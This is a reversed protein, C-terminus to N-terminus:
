GRKKSKKGVGGLGKTVELAIEFGDRLTSTTQIDDLSVGLEVLTSAVSPSLGSIITQCGMLRTAKSVKVFQNAVATDVAVVGSIDLVLVKSRLEAIKALSKDMIDATRMSDIVGVLPLLLIKDWIPTVPTSMEMLANSHEAIRDKQVSSIEDAILYIELMFLKSFASNVRIFETRDPYKEALRESLLQQATSISSFFLANPLDIQAHVRGIHRRKAVYAEDINAEFFNAWHPTQLQRAREVSKETPFFLSFEQQVALWAYWDNVFEPLESELQKGAARILTLDDATIMFRDLLTQLSV